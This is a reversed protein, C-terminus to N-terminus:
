AWVVQFVERLLSVSIIELGKIEIKDQLKPVIARTYGLKYAEKLRRELQQVQRIEGTLGIEGILITDSRITKELFASAMAMAIALDAAPEDVSLGGVINVYVDKDGMPLHNRKELVALLMAVRNYDTGTTMRRPQGYVSSAVLAQVEVLIPRTGELVAVVSSGPTDDPREKLFTESPNLVEKLGKATMDFLGIENTSGFRNKLARLIRYQYKNDGEFFLVTDVMHELVRPGAVQGDKTVHGILITSYGYNKAWSMAYTTVARLQSVSGQVSSLNSDFTTQISDLVILSPKLELVTEHLLSVDNETFLTIDAKEVGLREARNQIQGASEEGSIYLVSGNKAINAMIQMTLTSKGIGPDGSLLILSGPVLGGGLVRNFEGINTDIRLGEAKQVEKLPRPLVVKNTLAVTKSTTKKEVVKEELFTNWSQCEPCKGLWKIAKYGCESCIFETKVKAM